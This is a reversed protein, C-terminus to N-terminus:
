MDFWDKEVTGAQLLTLKNQLELIKQRSNGEGPGSFTLKIIEREIFMEHICHCYYELNASSVVHNTSILLYSGVSYGYFGEFGRKRVLFDCVTLLDIPLNNDYMWLMAAYIDRNSSFYFDEVTILGYTRSFAEKELLCLGIVATEMEQNYHLEKTFMGAQVITGSM